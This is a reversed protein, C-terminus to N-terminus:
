LNDRFNLNQERVNLGGFVVDAKVRLHPEGERFSKTKYVYDGFAITTEDPFDSAGFVTTVQVRMPTDRDIIIEGDGFVINIKSNFTTNKVEINTMDIEGSGFVINMEPNEPNFKMRSSGFVVSEKEPSKFSIGTLLKIGFYILMLSFLIRLFPINIGFVMKLIISVGALILLTGWFIGSSLLAM